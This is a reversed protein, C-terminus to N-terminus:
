RFEALGAMGSSEAVLRCFTQRLLGRWLDNPHHWSPNNTQFHHDGSIGHNVQVRLKRDFHGTYRTKLINLCMWISSQVARRMAALAGDCVSKRCPDARSAKSSAEICPPHARSFRQFFWHDCNQSTRVASQACDRWCWSARTQKAESAGVFTVILCSALTM